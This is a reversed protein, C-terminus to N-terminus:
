PERVDVGRPDHVAVHLGVVDHDSEARDNEPREPSPDPYLAPKEATAVGITTLSPKNNM